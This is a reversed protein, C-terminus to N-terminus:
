RLDEVSVTGALGDAVLLHKIFKNMMLLINQLSGFVLIM